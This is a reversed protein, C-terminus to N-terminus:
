VMKDTKDIKDLLFNQGNKTIVLKKNQGIKDLKRIKDKKNKSMKDKKNKTM